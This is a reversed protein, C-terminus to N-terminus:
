QFEALFFPIPNEVSKVRKMKNTIIIYLIFLDTFARSTFGICPGRAWLYAPEIAEYTSVPECLRVMLELPQKKAFYFWCVFLSPWFLTPATWFNLRCVRQKKELTLTDLQPLFLFCKWLNQRHLSFKSISSGTHHNKWLDTFM